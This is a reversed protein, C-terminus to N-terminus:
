LINKSSNNDCSYICELVKSDMKEPFTKLRSISFWGFETHEYNLVPFLLQPADYRYITLTCDPNRITSAYKLDELEVTIQAEEQLERKAAHAISLDEKDVAGTFISWDGGFPVPKGQYTEIRKALLVSNEHLVMVGAAIM